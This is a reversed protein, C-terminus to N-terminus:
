VPKAFGRAHSPKEIREDVPLGLIERVKRKRTMEAPTTGRQELWKTFEAFRVTHETPVSKVSVTVTDLPRGIGAVWENGRLHKLGLAVAEYLTAATVEVTHSVGDMDSITVRCSRVEM